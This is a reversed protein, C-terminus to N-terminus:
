GDKLGARQGHNPNNELKLLPTDKRSKEPSSPMLLGEFKRL